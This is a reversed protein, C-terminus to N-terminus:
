WYYGYGGYWPSLAFMTAFPLFLLPWFVEQADVQGARDATEVRLMNSEASVQGGMRELWIGDRTVNRVVGIHRGDHCHAVVTKGLYGRAHQYSMAM